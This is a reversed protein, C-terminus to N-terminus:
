DWLFSIVRRWGKARPEPEEPHKAVEDLAERIPIEALNVFKTGKM